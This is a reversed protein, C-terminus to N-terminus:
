SGPKLFVEVGPGSQFVYSNLLEANYQWTDESTSELHIWDNVNKFTHTNYLNNPFKVSAQMFALTINSNLYQLVQPSFPRTFPMIPLDGKMLILRSQGSSWQNSFGSLADVYTVSYGPMLFNSHQTFIRIEGRAIIETQMPADSMPMITDKDLLKVRDTVNVWTGNIMMSVVTLNGMTFNRRIEVGQRFHAPVNNKEPVWTVNVWKGDLWLGETTGGTTVNQFFSSASRTSNCVCLDFQDVVATQNSNNTVNMVVYFTLESPQGWSTVNYWKPISTNSDYPQLTFNAYVVDMSFDPKPGEPVRHFPEVYGSYYLPYAFAIGSSLSLIAVLIYKIASHM